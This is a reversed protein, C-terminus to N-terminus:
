RSASVPRRGENLGDTDAGVPSAPRFTDFASVLGDRDPVVSVAASRLTMWVVVAAAIVLALLVAVFPLAVEFLNTPAGSGGLSLAWFTACVFAVLVTAGSAATVEKMAVRAVGLRTVGLIQLYNNAAQRDYLLAVLSILTALLSALIAFIAGWRFVDLITDLESAGSVDASGVIRVNVAPDDGVLQDYLRYAQDTNLPVFVDDDTDRVVTGDRVTIIFGSLAGARFGILPVVAAKTGAPPTQGPYTVGYLSPTRCSVNGGVVMRLTPCSGTLTGSIEPSSSNNTGTLVDYNKLLSRTAAGPRRVEVVSLGDAAYAQELGAPDGGL